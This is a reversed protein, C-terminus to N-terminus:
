ILAPSSGHTLTLLLPYHINEDYVEKGERQMDPRLLRRLADVLSSRYQDLFLCDACMVVDFRGELASVDAENDWRVVRFSSLVLIIAATDDVGNCLKDSAGM